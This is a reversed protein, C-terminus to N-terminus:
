DSSETDPESRGVFWIATEILVYTFCLGAFLMAYFSISNSIVATQSAQSFSQLMSDADDVATPTPWFLMAVLPAGFFAVFLSLLGIGIGTVIRIRRLRDM